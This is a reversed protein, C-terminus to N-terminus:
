KVGILDITTGAPATPWFIQIAGEQRISDWVSDRVEVRFYHTNLRRPLGSPPGSMPTLEVGPLARRILTDMLSPTGVKATDQFSSLVTEGEEETRIALYYRTKPSFFRNRSPPRSGKPSRM